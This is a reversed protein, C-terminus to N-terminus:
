TLIGWFPGRSAYFKWGILSMFAATSDFAKSFVNLDICNCYYKSKTHLFMELGNRKFFFSSRLLNFYQFRHLEHQKFTKGFLPRLRELPVQVKPTTKVLWPCPVGLADYGDVERIM